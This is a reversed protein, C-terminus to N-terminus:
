LAPSLSVSWISHSSCHASEFWVPLGIQYVKVLRNLVVGNVTILTGSELVPEYQRLIQVLRSGLGQPLIDQTRVQIVSGVRLNSTLVGHLLYLFTFAVIILM